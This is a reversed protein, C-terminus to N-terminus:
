GPQAEQDVSAASVQKALQLLHSRIGPFVNHPDPDRGHSRMFKILSEIMSYEDEDRSVICHTMLTLVYPEIASLITTIDSPHQLQMIAQNIKPIDNTTWNVVSVHKLIRTDLNKQEVEVLPKLREYAWEGFNPKSLDEVSWTLVPPDISVYRESPPADTEPTGGFNLQIITHDTEAFIRSLAHTCLLEISTEGVSGIFLPLKLNKLWTVAKGEFRINPIRSSKFQVYFTNEAYLMGNEQRLLTAIADIGIDEQREVTAVACFGKLLSIGLEEKLDGSRLNKGRRGTM